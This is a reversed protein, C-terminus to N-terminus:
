YYVPVGPCLEQGHSPIEIEAFRMRSQAAGRRVAEGGRTGAEGGPPGRHEAAPRLLSGPRGWPCPPPTKERPRCCRQRRQRSTRPFSAACPPPRAGTRTAGTPRRM